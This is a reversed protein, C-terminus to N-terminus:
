RTDNLPIWSPWGGHKELRALFVRSWDCQAFAILRTTKAKQFHERAAARDGDALHSLAIAFHADCLSWKSKASAAVLEADSLDGCYYDLLRKLNGYRLHTLAQKRLARSAAVSEKKDGLLLLVNQPYIASSSSAYRNALEEYAARAIARDDPHLEAIIFARLCDGSVEARKRKDLVQLANELENQRYLALAYRYAFVPSDSQGAARRAAALSDSELGAQEFYAWRALAPYPLAEWPELAVADKKASDLASAEQEPKGAAAFINAASVHTQVSVALVYQNAALFEKAARIDAIAGEAEEADSRDEALTIRV